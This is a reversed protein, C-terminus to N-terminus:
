RAGAKFQELTGLDTADTLLCELNTTGVDGNKDVSRGQAQLGDRVLRVRKVLLRRQQERGGKVFGVLRRTFSLVHGTLNVASDLADQAVRDAEVAEAQAARQAAWKEAAIARLREVEALKTYDITVM